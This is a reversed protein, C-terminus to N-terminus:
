KNYPLFLILYIHFFVGAISLNNFKKKNEQYNIDNLSPQLYLCLDLIKKLSFPHTNSFPKQKSLPDLALKKCLKVLNIQNTYIKKPITGEGEINAWSIWSRSGGMVRELEM